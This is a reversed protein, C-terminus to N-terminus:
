TLEQDYLVCSFVYRKNFMGLHFYVHSSQYFMAWYHRCPIGLNVGMMCDCIVHGSTLMAAYHVVDGDYRTIKFLHKISM